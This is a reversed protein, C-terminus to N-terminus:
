HQNSSTEEEDGDARIEAGEVIDGKEDEDYHEIKKSYKTTTVMKNKITGRKNRNVSTKEKDDDNEEEQDDETEEQDGEQDDVNAEDVEDDKECRRTRM